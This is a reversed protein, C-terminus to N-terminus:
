SKGFFGIEVKFRIGKATAIRVKVGVEIGVKAGVERKVEVGIRV